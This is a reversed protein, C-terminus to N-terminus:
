SVFTFYLVHTIVAGSGSYTMPKSATFLRTITPSRVRTVWGSHVTPRTFQTDIASGEVGM